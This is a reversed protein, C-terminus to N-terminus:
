RVVEGQGVVDVESLYPPYYTYVFVGATYTTTEGPALTTQGLQAVAPRIDGDPHISWVVVKVSQLTESSDNRIEGWFTESEGSHGSLHKSLVTVQQYESTSSVSYGTVLVEVRAIRHKGPFHEMGFFPGAQGPFLVPLESM